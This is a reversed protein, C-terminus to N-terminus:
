RGEVYINFLASKYSEIDQQNKLVNNERSVNIDKSKAKLVISLCKQSLIDDKDSLYGVSDNTVIELLGDTPTSVIPVDLAIAELACM